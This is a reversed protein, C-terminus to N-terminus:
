QDLHYTPYYNHAPACFVSGSLFLQESSGGVVFMFSFGDKWWGSCDRLIDFANCFSIQTIRWRFSCFTLVICTPTPDISRVKLLICCGHLSTRMGTWLEKVSYLCLAPIRLQHTIADYIADNFIYASFDIGFAFM